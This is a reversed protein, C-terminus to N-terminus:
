LRAYVQREMQSTWLYRSAAAQGQGPTLADFRRQSPTPKFLDGGKM